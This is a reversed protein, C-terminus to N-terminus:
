ATQMRMNLHNQEIDRLEFTRQLRLGVNSHIMQDLV